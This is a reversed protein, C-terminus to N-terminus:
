SDDGEFFVSLDAREKYCAPCGVHPDPVAIDHKSCWAEVAVHRGIGLIGPRIEARLELFTSANDWLIAPVPCSECDSPHWRRAGSASGILRCEQVNRGRHYDEYYYKCEQGAPTKM